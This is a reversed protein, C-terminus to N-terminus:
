ESLQISGDLQQDPRLGELADFQRVLWETHQYATPQPHRGGTDLDGTRFDQVFTSGQGWAFTVATKCAYHIVRPDYFGMRAGLALLEVEDLWQRMAAKEDESLGTRVLDKIQVPAADPNSTRNHATKARAAQLVTAHPPATRDLFTRIGGM